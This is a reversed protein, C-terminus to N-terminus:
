NKIYWDDWFSIEEYVRKYGQKTLLSYIKQRMPTYNHECTIASISYKSFDFNSLIEYESGETDISLYDIVEPANYRLLLDTLSISNVQYTIGEKRAEGHSDSDSFTSITSFEHVTVQNFNLASNSEKWVCDTEINCARNKRLDSHWVRAPEAVIGDWGFEKEMLYTNSLDLGNTAGFEVFYGKRKFGSNSLVFLDQRLQSKSKSLCALLQHATDADNLTELLRLDRAASSRRNRRLEELTKHRTVALDFKRLVKSIATKALRKMKALDEQNSLKQPFALPVTSHNGM